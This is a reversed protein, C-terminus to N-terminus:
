TNTDYPFDKPKLSSSISSLLKRKQLVHLGVILPAIADLSYVRSAVVLTNRPVDYIAAAKRITLTSDTRIAQLALVIQSKESM